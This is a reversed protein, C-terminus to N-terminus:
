AAAVSAERMQEAHRRAHGAIIVLLEVGNLTGFVPHEAALYYLDAGKEQAIKVTRARVADFAALAETVTSFRGMPIVANPAPRRGSRDEMRMGLAAERDKDIRLADTRQASELRGLFREEVTVVHETCQLVSWRGAEPCVKAREESVAMAAEHVKRRSDELNKLIDMHTEPAM